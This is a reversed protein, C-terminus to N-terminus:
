ALESRSIKKFSFPLKYGFTNCYWLVEVQTEEPLNTWEAIHITPKQYRVGRYLKNANVPSTDLVRKRKMCLNKELLFLRLQEHQDEIRFWFDPNQALIIRCWSTVSRVARELPTKFGNLDLNLLRLIHQRRFVYSPPAYTSDRIVSSAATALDRVPMVLYKWALGRRSLAVADLAYPNEDAEVAFMWSSIGDAGLREHGVDLGMQRCLNAAYGTGCRPHGVFLLSRFYKKKIHKRALQEYQQAGDANGISKLYVSHAIKPHINSAFMGDSWSLESAIPPFLTFAEGKKPALQHQYVDVTHNIKQYRNFLLAAYKSTIAHCPNSMKITENVFCRRTAAHDPCLAWGLRLLCPQNSRFPVRRNSIEQELYALAHEAHDHIRVDDELILIRQAVASDVLMKWLNMYTIFTAVQQPILFNNCDPDGCDLKGCRFCPPFTTVEGREYASSVEQADANTANFFEFSSIGVSPLHKQIYSRRDDSTPLSIVIIRDFLSRWPQSNM